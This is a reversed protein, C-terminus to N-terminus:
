EGDSDEIANAIQSVITTLQKLRNFTTLVAIEIFGDERLKEKELLFKDRPYNSDSFYYEIQRKVKAKTADDLPAANEEEKVETSTTPESKNEVTEEKKVEEVTDSM